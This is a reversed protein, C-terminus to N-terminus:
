GDPLLCGVPDLRNANQRRQRWGSRVRLSWSALNATKDPLARSKCDKPRDPVHKRRLPLGSQLGDRSSPPPEKQNWKCGLAGFAPMSNRTQSEPLLAVALAKKGFLLQDSAGPAKAM